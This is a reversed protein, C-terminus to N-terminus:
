TDLPCATVPSNIRGISLDPTYLLHVQPEHVNTAITSLAPNAACGRPEVQGTPLTVAGM